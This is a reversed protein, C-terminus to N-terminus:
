WENIAIFCLLRYKHASLTVTNIKRAGPKWDLVKHPVKCLWSFSDLYSQLASVALIYLNRNSYQTIMKIILHPVLIKLGM